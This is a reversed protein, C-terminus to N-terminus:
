CRLINFTRQVLVARYTTLLAVEKILDNYDQKLSAIKERAFRKNSAVELVLQQLAENEEQESICIMKVCPSM